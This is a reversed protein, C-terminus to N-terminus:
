GNNAGGTYWIMNLAKFLERVEIMDSDSLNVAKDAYMDQSATYQVFTCNIHEIRKIVTGDTQHMLHVPEMVPPMPNKDNSFYKFYELFTDSFYVPEATCGAPPNMTFRSMKVNFNYCPKYGKFVTFNMVPKYVMTSPFICNLRRVSSYVYKFAIRADPTCYFAECNGDNYYCYFLDKRLM